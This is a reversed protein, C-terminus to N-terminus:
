SGWVCLTVTVKQSCKPQKKLGDVVKEEKVTIGRYEMLCSKPIRVAGDAYVRKLKGEYCLRDVTRVSKGLFYAAEKRTMVTEVAYLNGTVTACVIDLKHQATALDQRIEQIVEYATM